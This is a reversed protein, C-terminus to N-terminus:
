EVIDGGQWEIRETLEPETEYEQVMHEAQVALRKRREDLPLQLFARRETLSAPQDVQTTPDQTIM